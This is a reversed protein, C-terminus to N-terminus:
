HTRHERAFNEFADAALPRSFYNGQIENCGYRQVSDLQELTEVGEAIARLKLSRAIGIVAQSLAAGASDQHIDSIFSRDIKLKDVRFRRLYSLSSYGTGFDDIAVSCGLAKLDAIVESLADSDEMLTSETLEIEIQQPSIGADQTHRRVLDALDIRFIQRGSVNVAIKWNHGRDKWCRSQRCAEALVWEGIPVILGSEEAVPIFEAPSVRSGDKCNWRLLAEAGFIHRSDAYVQPQYSLTLEQREIARRLRNTLNLRSNARANMEDSFFSFTQRGSEKAHYMATDAKQM